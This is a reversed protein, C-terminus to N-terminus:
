LKIKIQLDGSTSDNLSEYRVYLKKSYFDGRSTVNVLGKPLLIENPYSAVVTDSTIERDSWVIRADHSLDGEVTFRAFTNAIGKSHIVFVDNEKVDQVKHTFNEDKLGLEKCGSLVSAALLLAHKM